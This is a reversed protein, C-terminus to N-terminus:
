RKPRRQSLSAPSGAACGAAPMVAAPDSGTGGDFIATDPYFAAWDFWFSEVSVIRNLQGGRM